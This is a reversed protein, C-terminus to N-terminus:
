RSPDRHVAREGCSRTPRRRVASAVGDFGAGVDALVEEPLIRLQEFQHLVEAVVLDPTKAEAAVIRELDVSRVFGCGLVFSLRGDDESAGDLAVSKAFAAFALVDRM